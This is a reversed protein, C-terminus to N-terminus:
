SVIQAIVTTVAMGTTFVFTLAFVLFIKKMIIEGRWQHTQWVQRPAETVAMVNQCKEGLRAWRSSGTSLECAPNSPSSDSMM